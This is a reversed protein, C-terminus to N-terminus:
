RDNHIAPESQVRPPVDRQAEFLFNSLGAFAHRQLWFAGYDTLHHQDKYLTQGGDSLPCSNGKCLHPWADFFFVSTPHSAQIQALVERTFAQIEPDLVVNMKSCDFHGFIAPRDFCASPPNAVVPGNGMLVVKRGNRLLVDVTERMKESWKNAAEAPPLKHPGIDFTYPRGGFRGAMGVEWLAALIVVRPNEREVRSQWELKKRICAADKTPNDTPHIDLVFPCAAEAPYFSGQIHLEKLAEAVAPAYHVAHSDGILVVDAHDGECLGVGDECFPLSTRRVIWPDALPQIPPKLMTTAAVGAVVLLSSLTGWAVAFRLRTDDRGRRYRQEVLHHLPIALLVSAVVLGARESQEIENFCWYQYFVMTPWHVLYLSYSIRGLYVGAPNNWVRELFPAVGGYIMLAAGICPFIVLPTPTHPRFTVISIVVFCFGLVSLAHRVPRYRPARELWVLLAGVAFEFVRFPTLFFVADPDIRSYAVCAILSLAGIASLAM